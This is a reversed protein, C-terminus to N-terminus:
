PNTFKGVDESHNHTYQQKSKTYTYLFFFSGRSIIEAFIYQLFFLKQPM